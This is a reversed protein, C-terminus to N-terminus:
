SGFTTIAGCMALAVTPVRLAMASIQALLRMAPSVPCFSGAQTLGSTSPFRLIPYPFWFLIVFVRFFSFAFYSLFLSPLFAPFAFIDEERKGANRIPRPKPKKSREWNRAKM